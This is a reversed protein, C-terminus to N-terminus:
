KINGKLRAVVFQACNACGEDSPSSIADLSIEARGAEKHGGASGVDGFAAKALRGAHGKFGANRFIIVLKGSYTGSVVSWTAEALKM